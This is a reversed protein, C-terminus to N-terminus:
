IKGEDNGSSVPPTFNCFDTKSHHQRIQHIDNGNDCRQSSCGSYNHLAKNTPAILKRASHNCEKQKKEGDKRHAYTKHKQNLLNGMPLCRPLYLESSKHAINTSIEM